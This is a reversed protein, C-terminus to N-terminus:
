PLQVQCPLLQTGQAKGGRLMEWTRLPTWSLESSVKWSSEILLPLFSNSLKPPWLPCPPIM